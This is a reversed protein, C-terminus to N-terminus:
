DFYYEYEVMKVDPKDKFYIAFGKDSFQILDTKPYELWIPNVPNKDNIFWLGNTQTKEIVRIQGIEAPRFYHSVIKLKDGVKLTNKLNSLNKPTIFNPSETGSGLSNLYESLENFDIENTLFMRRKDTEPSEIEMCKIGKFLCQLNVLDYKDKPMDIYFGQVEQVDKNEAELKSEMEQLAEYYNPFETLHDKVIEEQMEVNNTHESEIKVGKEFQAKIYDLSVKHKKAIEELTLKDGKGGILVESQSELLQNLYPMVRDSINKEPIESAKNKFYEQKLNELTEKRFAEKNGNAYEVIPYEEELNESIVKKGNIEYLVIDKGESVEAIQQNKLSLNKEQESIKEELWEFALKRAYQPKIGRGIIKHPRILNSELDQKRQKLDAIDKEIAEKKTKLSDILGGDELSLYMGTANEIAPKLMDNYLGEKKVVVTYKDGRIRGVELDYLDLSSLTIKIYNARQNKIRFSVGNPLAIFNYAGTMINLRNMGGLQRIIENAIRTKDENVSGGDKFIYNNLEYKGNDMRYLQINLQKKQPKGDKLLEISTRKTEGYGIGGVTVDPFYGGVTEYGKSKAYENSEELASSLTDHYIQYPRGGLAMKTEDWNKTMSLNGGYEYKKVPCGIVAKVGKSLDITRFSDEKFNMPNSQRLRFTNEKEDVSGYKFDNRDAWNKAERETFNEKSFIISQVETGVPCLKKRKM